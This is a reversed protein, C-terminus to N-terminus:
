FQGKRAAKTFNFTLAFQQRYTLANADGATFWRGHPAPHFIIGISNAIGAHGVKVM